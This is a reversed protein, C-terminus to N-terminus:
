RTFRLVHEHVPTNRGRTTAARLDRAFGLHELKRAFRGRQSRGPDIIVVECTPQAHRDIFGSLTSEHDRQYLVDSGIILDFKTLEVTLQSWGTRVFPIPSGGNLLANFELFAEADPNHDTATIDAHRANLVLSALGIGCGVELIRKGEVDYTAMMQALSRGSDWLVGFTSWSASCIGLAAARGSPDDHERTDRLTRVHIDLEGFEITEYRVRLAKM